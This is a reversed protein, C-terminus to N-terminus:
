RSTGRVDNRANPTYETIKLVIQKKQKNIETLKQQEAIKNKQKRKKKIYINEWKRYALCVDYRFSAEFRHINKRTHNKM